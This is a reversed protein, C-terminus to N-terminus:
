SRGDLFIEFLIKIKKQNKEQIDKPYKKGDESHVCFFDPNKEPCFYSFFDM